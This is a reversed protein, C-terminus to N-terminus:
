TDGGHHEHEPEAPPVAGDVGITLPWPEDDGPLAGGVEARLAARAIWYERVSALWGSQVDYQEGRAQLLTFVGELMFNVREQRRETASAAAPMLRDRYASYIEYALELREIGAHVANEVDLSLADLLARADLLRAELRAVAAQGQDFLPLEATLGPGRRVEGGADHEREYGVGIPRLLRWRRTTALADELMAVEQGAAALDHRQAIAAAIVVNASMEPPPPEPLRDATQWPDSSRLGLLGALRRRADTADSKAHLAALRAGAARMREEDLQLRTINGAAHFREALGVATDAAQAAADRMVFTQLAGVQTYWATEVDKRLQMLADMVAFETRRFDAASLRRRSPLLLLDSFTIFISQSTENPGGSQPDLWSLSLRPNAIRAAAHLDAYSIGLRAYQRRIEPNRFFALKLAAELDLPETFATMSVPEADSSPWAPIAGAPVAIRSAVGAAAHDLPTVACGTLIGAAAAIAARYSLLRM